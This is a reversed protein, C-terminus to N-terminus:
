KELIIKVREVTRDSIMELFYIGTSIDEPRIEISEGAGAYLLRKSWIMQGSINLLQLFVQRHISKKFELRIMGRSPNPYVHLYSLDFYDPQPTGMLPTNGLIITFLGEAGGASGDVQIFYAKGPVLNELKAIAAAYNLQESHYDDNAALLTYNGSLIDSCSAAEYIAVQNDFGYTDLSITGTLPAEFQFWVTHQLGNEPCWKLPANCADTGLTDPIPENDEVTANQNSFPGNKGLGLPIPSCVDDNVLIRIVSTAQDTCNGQTGTVTYTIDTLPTTSVENGTITDLYDAPEWTYEDAGLAKLILTEGAPLYTTDPFISIDISELNNIYDTKTETQEVTGRYATLRITKLGKSGYTVGVTDEKSTAPIAESGFDWEISDANGLSANYFEFTSGMCAFGRNVTFEAFLPDTTDTYLDSEWLGRGYTGARIKGASYQIELENVIVNPLGDNFSIWEDMSRNRYYVGIDTGVYLGQNSNNEYVICNTSVNPLNASYNEWTQGGDSSRYVKKGAVYGSVTVFVKNPDYQSVSIYSIDSAPTDLKKWTRGGNSTKWINANSSAYVHEPQSPSIALANIRATGTLNLNSTKVWTFGGDVTMYVDEYGAYLINHDSPHIVYPTIWAGQEAQEPTINYWSIGGNFSKYIHGYQTSSYIINTDTYDVICEMGDALLIKTWKGGRSLFTGNDQNGSIVMNPNLSSSGIRYIQLNNLTHSLDTWSHGRDNSKYIGGDNGSFLAGTVPHFELAHHDVHVYPEDTVNWYPYGFTQLEWTSGANRGLWLNIGGVFVSDLNTPSIALCLDYWGQGGSGNGDPDTVLLNKSTGPFIVEWTSGFNVSRYVGLLGGDIDSVLAIVYNPNLPSVALEIRRGKNGTIASFSSSASFSVGENQSIFLRSGGARYEATIVKMPEGPKFEIDKFNGSIIKSWYGGGNMTRYIGNSTAAIMREHQVPHILLKNVVVQDALSFDLGASQWTIGGDTTKLLGIGPLDPSDRDGTAIYLTEPSGPHVVIDAIGISPLFDTLPRWSRGGDTTKWLGGTPSGIWMINTDTPHFEICDIRGMGSLYTTNYIYPVSDPGIYKWDAVAGKGRMGAIDRNAAAEWLLRAPFHGQEDVRAEMLWEWRRFVNYGIGRGPEKKKWYDHFAKQLEFFDPQVVSKKRDLKELWAQTFGHLALSLLLLFLFGRRM